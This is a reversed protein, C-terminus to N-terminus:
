EVDVTLLGVDVRATLSPAGVTGPLEARLDGVGTQRKGAGARGGIEVRGVSVEASLPGHVRPVNDIEMKGSRVAFENAGCPLGDVQLLGAALEVRCREARPLAIRIPEDAEGRVTIETRQGATVVETTARMAESLEVRAPGDSARVVVRGKNVVYVTAGETAAMAEAAMAAARGPADEDRGLVATLVIAVAACAIVTGLGRRRRPTAPRATTTM